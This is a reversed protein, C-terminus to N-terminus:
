SGTLSAAINISFGIIAANFFFSLVSQAIVAKRMRRSMVAVDSTQAAVAITFAFYLFDWYDPAQEDDPFKLARKAAPSIYFLHAYHFTYIIVILLWSGMVTIMTFAFHEIRTSGSVQKVSALEVVIAALSLVAGISLIVLVWIAQARDEEEAISKVKAHPARLMLWSMLFLYTWVGVDWGVLLRSILTLSAPFVLGFVAGLLLSAMLRPHESRTIKRETM